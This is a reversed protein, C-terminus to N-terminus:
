DSEALIKRQIKVADSWLAVERGNDYVDESLREWGHRELWECWHEKTRDEFSPM